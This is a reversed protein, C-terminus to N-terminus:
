KELSFPKFIRGIREWISTKKLNQQQAKKKEDKLSTGTLFKFCIEIQESFADPELESWIVFEMFDLKKPSYNEDDIQRVMIANLYAAHMIKLMAMTVESYSAEKSIILNEKKENLVKYLSLSYLLEREEGAITVKQLPNLM